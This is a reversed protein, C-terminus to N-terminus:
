NSATTGDLTQNSQPSSDNHLYKLMDSPVGVPQPHVPVETKAKQAAQAEENMEQNAATIVKETSSSTQFVSMVDAVSRGDEEQIKDVLNDLALTDM